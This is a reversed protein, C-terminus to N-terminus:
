IKRRKTRKSYLFLLLGLALLVSGFVYFATTGYGGSGPLEVPPKHKNEYEVTVTEAICGSITGAAEDKIANDDGSVTIKANYSEDALEEIM